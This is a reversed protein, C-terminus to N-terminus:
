LNVKLSLAKTVPWVFGEGRAEVQLGTARKSLRFPRCVGNEIYIADWRRRGCIGL